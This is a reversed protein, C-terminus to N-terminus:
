VSTKSHARALATRAERVQGATVSIGGTEKDGIVTYAAVASDNMSVGIYLEALPELAAVLAEIIDDKRKIAAAAEQMGDEYREAPTRIWIDELESM